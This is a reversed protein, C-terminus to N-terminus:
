YSHHFSLLVVFMSLVELENLKVNFPNDASMELKEIKTEYPSGLLLAILFLLHTENNNIKTNTIITFIKDQFIDSPNFQNTANM